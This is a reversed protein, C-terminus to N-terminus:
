RHMRAPFLDAEVHIEAADLLSLSIPDSQKLIEDAQAVLRHAASSWWGNNEFVRRSGHLVVPKRHAAGDRCFSDPRMNFECPLEYYGNRKSLLNLVDQDALQLVVEGTEAEQLIQLVKDPMGQAHWAENNIGLVGSNLGVEGAKVKQRAPLGDYWGCPNGCNVSYYEEALFIATDSNNKMMEILPEVSNTILADGDVHLIRTYSNLLTPVWLRAAACRGWMNVKAGRVSELDAVDLKQIKAKELLLHEQDLRKSCTEDVITWIDWSSAHSNSRQQATFTKLLNIIDDCRDGCGVTVFASDSMTSINQPRVQPLVLGEGCFILFSGPILFARM